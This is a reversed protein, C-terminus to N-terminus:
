FSRIPRVYNPIWKAGLNYQFGDSYRQSWAYTGNLESSSWYYNSTFNGVVTKQTYLQQLEDKSPLYWDNFGNLLLQVCVNAAYTGAGQATVIAATNAQGTGIATGAAGTIIYSGNYWQVGTGQDSAAAILGHQGTGDLYFIIGGGYALGITPNLIIENGYATGVSNTAYARAYYPTGPTLGTISSV